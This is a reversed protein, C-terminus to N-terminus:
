DAKQWKIFDSEEEQRALDSTEFFGTTSAAIVLSETKDVLSRIVTTDTRTNIKANFTIM